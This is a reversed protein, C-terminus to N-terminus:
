EPLPTLEAKDIWNGCSHCKVKTENSFIEEDAGCNPCQYTQAKLDRPDQGPCRNVM